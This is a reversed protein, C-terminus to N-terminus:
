NVLKLRLYQSNEILHGNSGWYSNVHNAPFYLYGDKSWFPEDKGNPMWEKFSFSKILTIKKSTIRYIDMDTSLSYPNANMTILYHQDPSILPYDGLSVITTLNTKDILKFDWSEWYMGSIIYSNLFDIRGIYQYVQIDEEANPNDIFKLTKKSSKLTIVGNVKKHLSTDITIFNVATSKKTDYLKKDIIEFKLMKRALESEEIAFDETNEMERQVLYLDSDQLLIIESTDLKFEPRICRGKAHVLQTASINVFLLLLYFILRAQM